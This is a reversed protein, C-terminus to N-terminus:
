SGPPFWLILHQKSWLQYRTLLQISGLLSVDLLLAKVPVHVKLPLIQSWGLQGCLKQSMMMLEQDRHHLFQWKFNWRIRRLWRGSVCIPTCAEATPTKSFRWSRLLQQQLSQSVDLVGKFVLWNRRRCINSLSGTWNCSNCLWCSLWSAADSQGGDKVIATEKKM